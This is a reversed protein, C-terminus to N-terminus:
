VPQMKLIETYKCLKTVLSPAPHIWRVEPEKLFPIQQSERDCCRLLCNILKASEERLAIHIRTEYNVKKGSEAQKTPIYPGQYAESQTLFLIFVKVKRSNCKTKKRNLLIVDTKGQHIQGKKSAELFSATQKM